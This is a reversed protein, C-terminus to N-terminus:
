FLDIERITDKFKYLKAPRGNSGENKDGTDEILDFTLFKKRFNRRDLEKGLIIEFVQQLEPLTFDSPFLSKLVGSNNLKEKLHEVSSEIITEYNYASKPISDISFWANDDKIEEKKLEITKSDIIAMYAISIYHNSNREFDTFTQVQYTTVEKLGIKEEFIKSITHSFEEKELTHKPLQWYGKYPDTKRKNLLIKVEGQFVSFVSLTIEVNNM